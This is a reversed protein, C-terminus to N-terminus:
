AGCVNLVDNLKTFNKCFALRKKEFVRIDFQMEDYIKYKSSAKALEEAIKNLLAVDLSSLPTQPIGNKLTLSKILIYMVIMSWGRKSQLLEM